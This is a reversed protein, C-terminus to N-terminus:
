SSPKRWQVAYLDTRRNHLNRVSGQKRLEKILDLDLDAILTSLGADLMPASQNKM